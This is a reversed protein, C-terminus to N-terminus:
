YLNSINFNTRYKNFAEMSTVSSRVLEFDELESRIMRVVLSDLIDKTEEYVRDREVEEGERGDDMDEGGGGEPTSKRLYCHV